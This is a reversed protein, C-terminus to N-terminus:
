NVKAVVLTMDDQQPNNETFAAIKQFLYFHMPTKLHVSIDTSLSDELADASVGGILEVFEERVHPVRRTSGSGGSLRM